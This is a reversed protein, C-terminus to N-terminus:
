EVSKVDIFEKAKGRARGMEGRALKERHPFLDNSRKLIEEPTKGEAHDYLPRPPMSFAAWGSFFLGKAFKLRHGKGREIKASLTQLLADGM